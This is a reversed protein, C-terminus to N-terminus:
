TNLTSGAGCENVRDKHMHSSKVGIPKIVFPKAKPIKIRERDNCLPTTHLKQQVHFINEAAVNILYM